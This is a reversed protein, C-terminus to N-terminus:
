KALGLLEQAALMPPDHRLVNDCYETIAPDLWQPRRAPSRKEGVTKVLAQGADSFSEVVYTALSAVHPHIYDTVTVGRYSLEDLRYKSNRPAVVIVPTGLAVAAALEVGIGLGRRERADVIVADAIMVQYMDRGFQGLTNEPDVIPDDPNLFAVDYPRAWQRVLEKEAETWYSKKEDSTGKAISGSCYVSLLMKM